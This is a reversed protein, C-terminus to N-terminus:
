RAATQAAPRNVPDFVPMQHIWFTLWNERVPRAESLLTRAPVADGALLEWAALVVSSERYDPLARVQRLLEAYAVRMGSADLKARIAQPDAIPAKRVELRKLWFDLAQAENGRALEIFAGYLNNPQTQEAQREFAEHALEANGALYLFWVEDWGISESAPDVERARQIAEISEEHRGLASLLMARTQWAYAFQPDRSLAVDVSALAKMPQADRYFDLLAQTVYSEPLAPDLAKARDLHRQAERFTDLETLGLDNGTKHAYIDALAAHAPAFSADARVLEDLIRRAALTADHERRSWLQRARLYQATQGSEVARSATLSHLNSGPLALLIAVAVAVCAGTSLLAIRIARRPASHTSGASRSTTPHAVLDRHVPLDRHGALDPEASASPAVIADNGQSTTQEAVMRYGRKPITEICSSAGQGLARRLDSIVNAVSNSSVVKGEWVQDLLDDTTVVTGARTRLMLLVKMARAELRRVEGAPGILELSTPRVTWQGLKWDDAALPDRAGPSNKSDEPPFGSSM